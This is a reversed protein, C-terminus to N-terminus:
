KGPSYKEASKTKCMECEVMPLKDPCVKDIDVQRPANPRCKDCLTMYGYCSKNDVYNNM